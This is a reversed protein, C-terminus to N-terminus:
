PKVADVLRQYTAASMIYRKPANRREEVRLWEIKVTLIKPKTLVTREGHPQSWAEYHVNGDSDTKIKILWQIDVYTWNTAVTRTGSTGAGGAATFSPRQHGGQGQRNLAM